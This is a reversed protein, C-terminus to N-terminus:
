PNQTPIEDNRKHCFEVINVEALIKNIWLSKVINKHDLKMSNKGIVSWVFMSLKM